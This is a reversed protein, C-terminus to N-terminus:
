EWDPSREDYEVIWRPDEGLPGPPGDDAYFYSLWEGDRGAIGFHYDSLTGVWACYRSGDDSVTLTVRPEWNCPLVRSYPGGDRYAGM